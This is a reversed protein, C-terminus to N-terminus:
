ENIKEREKLLNTIGYIVVTCHPYAEVGPPQEEGEMYIKECLENMLKKSTVFSFFENMKSWVENALGWEYFMQPDKVTYYGKATPNIKLDENVIVRQQEENIMEYSLLNSVEDYTRNLHKSIKGFFEKLLRVSILIEAKDTISSTNVIEATIHLRLNFERMSRRFKEEFILLEQAHNNFKEGDDRYLM